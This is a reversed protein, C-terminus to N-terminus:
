FRQAHPWSVAHVSTNPRPMRTAPSGAAAVTFRGSLVKITRCRTVTLAHSGPDAPHLARRIRGRACPPIGPNWVGDMRADAELGVRSFALARAHVKNQEANELHVKEFFSVRYRLNGNLLFDQREGRRTQADSGGVWPQPLKLPGVVALGAHVREIPRRSLLYAM